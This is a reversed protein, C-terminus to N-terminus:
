MLINAFSLLSCVQEEERYILSKRPRRYYHSKTSELFGFGICPWKSAAIWKCDATRTTKGRSSATERSCIGWNTQFVIIAFYVEDYFISISLGCFFSVKLLSTSGRAMGVHTSTTAWAVDGRSDWSHWTTDAMTAFCCWVAPNWTGTCRNFWMTWESTVCLKWM